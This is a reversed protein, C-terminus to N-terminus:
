SEFQIRKTSASADVDAAPPAQEYAPATWRRYQVVTMGFQLAAGDTLRVPVRVRRGNLLTGNASGLDTLVHTGSRADWSLRAHLRSLYPDPICISADAGRGVVLDADGRCALMAVLSADPRLLAAFEVLPEREAGPGAGQQAAPPSRFAMHELDSM